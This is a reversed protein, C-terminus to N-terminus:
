PVRYEFSHEVIVEGDWNQGSWDSWHVTIRGGADDVRMLGFQGGDPYTGESYPGGKVKGRRDLAAAHFVPFGPGTGASDFANNSGDDIALMHADGSLMALHRVGNATIFDALERREAAYGGWDDRGDGAPAIWPVSNVWVTLAHTDRAALLEGKLWEKRGPPM